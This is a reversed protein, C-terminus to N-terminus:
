LVRSSTQKSGFAVSNGRPLLIVRHALHQRSCACCIVGRNYIERVIKTGESRRAARAEGRDRRTSAASTPPIALSKHPGCPRSASEGGRQLLRRCGGAGCARGSQPGFSMWYSPPTVRPCARARFTLIQRGSTKGSRRFHAFLLAADPSM